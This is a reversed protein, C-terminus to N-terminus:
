LDRSLCQPGRDILRRAAGTHAFGIERGYM